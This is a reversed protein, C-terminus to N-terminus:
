SLLKFALLRGAVRCAAIFLTTLLSVRVANLIKRGTRDFCGRMVEVLLYIWFFMALLSLGLTTM